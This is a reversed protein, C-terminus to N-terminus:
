NRYKADFRGNTVKLTDTENFFTLEFTGSVINDDTDFKTLLLKRSKLTDLEYSKFIEFNRFVSAFLLEYEGIDVVNSIAFSMFEDRDSTILNTRFQLEDYIPNFIVDLDKESSDSTPIWVEGNILCGFTNEGTMTAPPLQNIPNRTAIDDDNCSVLFFLFLLYFLKM